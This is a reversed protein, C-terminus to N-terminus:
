VWHGEVDAAGAAALTGARYQDLAERVTMAESTYVTVKAAQLVRFAKPGCHGTVVGKAGTRVVGEAAQIGAGQAADMNRSNDIIEFTDTDLDYVLYRSARGFRADLPADLNNGSTTFALKMSTEEMRHIHNMYRIVSEEFHTKKQIRLWFAASERGLNVKRCTRYRISFIGYESFL